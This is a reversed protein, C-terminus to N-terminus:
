QWLQALHRRRRVAPVVEPAAATMAGTCNGGVLAAVILAARARAVVIDAARPSVLAGDRSLQCAETAAHAPLEDGMM